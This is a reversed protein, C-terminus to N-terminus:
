EQWARIVHWSNRLCIESETTNPKGYAADVDAVMETTIGAAHGDHCCSIGNGIPWKAHDLSSRYGVFIAVLM